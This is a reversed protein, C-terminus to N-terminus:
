IGDEDDLKLDASIAYLGGFFGIHDYPRWTAGVEARAGRGSFDDSLLRNQWPWDYRDLLKRLDRLFWPDILRVQEARDLEGRLETVLGQIPDGTEQATAPAPASAAAVVLACLAILPRLQKM